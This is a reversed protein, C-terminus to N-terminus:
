APLKTKPEVVDYGLESAAEVFVGRLTGSLDEQSFLSLTVSDHYPLPGGILSYLETEVYLVAEEGQELRFRAPFDAGEGQAEQSSLPQWPRESLKVDRSKTFIFGWERREWHEEVINHAGLASAMEPFARAVLDWPDVQSGDEGLWTLVAFRYPHGPPPTPSYVDTGKVFAVRGTVM